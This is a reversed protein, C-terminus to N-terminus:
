AGKDLWIGIGQANLELDIKLFDGIEARPLDCGHIKLYKEYIDLLGNKLNKHRDSSDKLSIALSVMEDLQKSRFLM